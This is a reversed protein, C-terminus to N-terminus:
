KRASKEYLETMKKALEVDRETIGGADHTQLEVHVRNYVNKWDPHHDLKEAVLAVSAMWGFADVFSDFQFTRVLKQGERAWGTIGGLRGTIEDESLRTRAM